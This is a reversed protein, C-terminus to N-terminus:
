YSDALRNNGQTMAACFPSTKAAWKVEMANAPYTQHYIHCTHIDYGYDLHPTNECQPWRTFAVSSHYLDPRHITAIHIHVHVPLMVFM